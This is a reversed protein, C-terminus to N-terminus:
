SFESRGFLSLRISDFVCVVSSLALNKVRSGFEVDNHETTNPPKSDEAGKVSWSAFLSSRRANSGTSSPPSLLLSDDSVQLVLTDGATFKLSSLPQIVNKGGQQVAVIAAKYNERFKVEEATRGVLRSSKTIRARLVRLGGKKPVEVDGNNELVVQLFSM